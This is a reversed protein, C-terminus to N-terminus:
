TIAAMLATAKYCAKTKLDSGNSFVVVVILTQVRRLSERESVDDLFTRVAKVAKRPKALMRNSPLLWAEGVGNWVKYIGASTILHGDDIMSYAMGPQSAVTDFYPKMTTDADALSGFDRRGQEILDEAHGAVFDIIKIM